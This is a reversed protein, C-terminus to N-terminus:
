GLNEVQANEAEWVRKRLSSTSWENRQHYMVPINLDKGVFNQHEIYDSGFFRVAPKLAVLLNYHDQETEYEIFASVYRNSNILIRREEISMIPKNKYGREMSPDLHLGVVLFDCNSKAFELMQCHGAHLLDWSSCVYGIRAKEGLWGRSWKYNKLEIAFNLQEENYM